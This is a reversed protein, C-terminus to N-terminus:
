QQKLTSGCFLFHRRAEGTCPRPTAFCERTGERQPPVRQDVRPLLRELTWDAVVVGVLQVIDSQMEHAFMSAGWIVKTPQIARM